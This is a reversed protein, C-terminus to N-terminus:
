PGVDVHLIESRRLIAFAPHANWGAEDAETEPTCATFTGGM